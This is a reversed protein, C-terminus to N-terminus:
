RRSVFLCICSYPIIFLLLVMYVFCNASFDVCVCLAGDDPPPPPHVLAAAAVAKQVASGVSNPHASAASGAAHVLSCLYQARWLSLTQSLFQQKAAAPQFFKPNPLSNPNSTYNLEQVLSLNLLLHTVSDTKIHTHLVDHDSTQNSPSTPTQECVDM